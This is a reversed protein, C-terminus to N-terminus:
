QEIKAEILKKHDKLVDIAAMEEDMQEKIEKLQERYGSNSDNKSQKIQDYLKAKRVYNNNRDILANDVDEVSSFKSTDIKESM